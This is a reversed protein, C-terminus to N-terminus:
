IGLASIGLSQGIHIEGPPIILTLQQAAFVLEKRSRKSHGM